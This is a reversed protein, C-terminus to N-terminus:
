RHIAVGLLPGRKHHTFGVVRSVQLEVPGQSRSQNKERGKNIAGTEDTLRHGRILGCIRRMRQETVRGYDRQTGDGAKNDCITDAKQAAEWGM